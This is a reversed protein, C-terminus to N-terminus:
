NLGKRINMRWVGIPIEFGRDIKEYIPSSLLGAMVM